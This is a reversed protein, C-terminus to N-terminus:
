QTSVTITGSFSSLRVSSAGSNATGAFARDQAASLRPHAKPQFPFNNHVAGNISRATLDVSATTPLRVDINGSHNMLNYNGGGACDGTFQIPGSTTNVVVKPGSVGNLMVGGAVSGLDVYSNMVNTLTIAGNVTRVQVHADSLDRLDVAASEGQATVDGRLREARLPGTASRIVVTADAPAQVDYDVRKEDDSGPQLVHTRLEIRKGNQTKDVEVKDSHTVASVVVQNGSAPQVTIPGFENIVTVSIGPGAPFRFETRKEAALSATALLAVTTIALLRRATEM